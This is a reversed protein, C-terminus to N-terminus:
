ANRRKLVVSNDDSEDECERKQSFALENTSTNEVCLKGRADNYCRRCVAEYMEVGGIVEVKESLSYLRAITPFPERRFDGDLAAIIVTKGMNALAESITVIDDFFQGEDVGIVQYQQITNIVDSLRLAKLAKMKKADHTSAMESDYRNDKAYKVLVTKKGALEYRNLQRFLETSKGSFMPGVIMHIGGRGDGCYFDLVM